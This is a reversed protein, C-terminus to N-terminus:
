LVASQKSKDQPNAHTRGLFFQINRNRKNFEKNM